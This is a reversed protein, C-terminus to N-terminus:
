QQTVSPLLKADITRVASLLSGSMRDFAEHRRHGGVIPHAYVQLTMDFKSHGMLSAVDPLALGHEIMWSAAFHRLAHFHLQDGGEDYLDAAKLLPVWAHEKFNGSSIKAGSPTRFVLSRENEVYHRRLWARLMQAIHTPMPVDRRGSSTKPDKLLDWQTLNHRVRIVGHDFDLSAGTLGMIEGFRLGCFAAIHVACEVFDRARRRCGKPREAAARLIATTMDATFVRIPKVKASGAERKFERVVARKSQGRKIAHEEVMKLVTTFAEVSRISLRLGRQWAELDSWTLDALVKAGLTPVIHNKIATQYIMMRSQGIQGRELRQEATELFSRCSQAITAKMVPAVHTGADLEAEIKRRFADAEKQRDFQNSRRVGTEDVYRVVYATKEVGKHTWKRKSVKAM